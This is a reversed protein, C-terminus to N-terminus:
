LDKPREALTIEVEYFEGERFFKVKMKDGIRHSLVSRIVDDMNRIERGDIEVIIDGLTFNGSASVNTGKLIGYSPGRPDVTIVLAGEKISLNEAMNPTFDRGTIGMWPRLVKGNEIIERGVREATNIPISLGIGQFGETTSFIATNIGIVEGKLNLLPGGSNGPNIAADTQIAGEIVYSGDTRFSRNLASIVGVTLTNTFRFPNGIAITTEGVRLTSSDGLKAPKLNSAPIKIVAIDTIPDRGIVEAEYEEGNYLVVVPKDSGRIVHENTLIYGDERLIIGSGTGEIPVPHFSANRFSTIHVVSPLTEKFIRPIIEDRLDEGNIIYINLNEGKLGKVEMSSGNFYIFASDENIQPLPYTLLFLGLFASSIIGGLFGALLYGKFGM